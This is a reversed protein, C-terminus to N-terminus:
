VQYDDKWRVSRLCMAFTVNKFRLIWTTDEKLM